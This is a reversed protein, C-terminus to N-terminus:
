IPSFVKAISKNQYCDRKGVNLMNMQLKKKRISVNTQWDRKEVDLLNMQLKKESVSVAKDIEKAQM